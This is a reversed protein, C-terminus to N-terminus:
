GQILKPFIEGCLSLKERCNDKQFHDSKIFRYDYKDFDKPTFHKGRQNTINIGHKRATAISREDPQKGVHQSTVDHNLDKGKEAGCRAKDSNEWQKTVNQNIGKLQKHCKQLGINKGQQDTNIQM